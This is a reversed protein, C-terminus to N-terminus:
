FVGVRFMLSLTRLISGYIEDGLVSESLKVLLVMIKIDILEPNNAQVSKKM